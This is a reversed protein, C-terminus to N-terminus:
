KPAKKGKGKAPPAALEDKCLFGDCDKDRGKFAKEVAEDGGKAKMGQAAKGAAFEEKSLKQDGDKDCEKLMAEARKAPDAPAKGKGKKDGEAAFALGAMLSLAVTIVMTKKM